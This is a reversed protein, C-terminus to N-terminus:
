IVVHCTHIDNLADDGTAATTPRRFFQGPQWPKKFQLWGATALLSATHKAHQVKTRKVGPEAPLWYRAQRTNVKQRRIYAQWKDSGWAESVLGVKELLRKWHFVIDDPRSVDTPTPIWRSSVVAARLCNCDVDNTADDSRWWDVLTSSSSWTTTTSEFRSVAVDLWCRASWTSRCTRLEPLINSQWVNAPTQLGRTASATWFYNQKRYNIKQAATLADHAQSNQWDTAFTQTLSQM